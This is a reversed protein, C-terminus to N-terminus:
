RNYLERAGSSESVGVIRPSGLGTSGWCGIVSDGGEVPSAFGASGDALGASGMISVVVVVVVVIVVVM